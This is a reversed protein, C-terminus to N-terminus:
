LSKLAVEIEKKLKEGSMEEEYFKKFGTKNNIILTAPIAGSWSKDIRNCFYDADTENLWVIKTKYGKFKVFDTLENPYASPMDLSVLILKVNQSALSDTVKIFDPIEAICPKCFTAWFNVVMVDDKYQAMYSELETIKLAAIKDQAAAFYGAITFLAAFFYKIM